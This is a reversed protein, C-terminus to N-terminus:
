ATWLIRLKTGDKAIVRGVVPESDTVKAFKGSAATVSDGVAYTAAAYHDGDCEVVFSGGLCLVKGGAFSIGSSIEGGMADMCFFVIDGAAATATDVTGDTKLEAIQGPVLASGAAKAFTLDIAGESPWGKVIQYM